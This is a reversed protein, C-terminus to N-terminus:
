LTVSVGGMAVDCRDAAVDDAVTTWTTPVVTMRVGLKRALDGAMDLDIGSWKNTAPDRYTFPRYDGTSCVRLEGRQAVLDLASPPLPAPAPPLPKEACGVGAMLLALLGFLSTVVRRPGARGMRAGENGAGAPDPGAGPGVTGYRRH